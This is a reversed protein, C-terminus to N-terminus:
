STRIRLICGAGLELEVLRSPNDDSSSHTPSALEATIDVLKPPPTSASGDEQFRKRWTYFGSPAIKHQRCYDELKMNSTAFNDILARWQTESRRTYKRHPQTDNTTITM